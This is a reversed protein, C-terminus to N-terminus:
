GIELDDLAQFLEDDSASAYDADGPAPASGTDRADRWARLLAELRAEIRAGTDADAPDAARLAVELRDVHTLVPRALDASEPGALTLLLDTVQQATPHDFVLTSPVALGTTTRLRRRVEVAAVSDFGLDKFARDPEVADTGPHGLVAAVQERVLQLVARHREGDPLALLQQWHETDTEADAPTFSGDIHQYAAATGSGALWYPTRQFPYVPLPVRRASRGEFFTQWDIDLGRAHAAAVATVLEREEGRDRRLLPLFVADTGDTLCDDGMASLVADPGLEIYTATNESELHRVADAFRVTERVHRVWYGPDQAEEATLSAGTLTSVVPLQPPAYDLGGAIGAFEDLMPEMLPSHFAHSVKLQKTRHGEAAFRNCLELVADRAGSVVVSTRGNVAGIGVRDTLYPRVQEETAQVAVMAGGEPLAQMLRGRAAVLKAAHELTLIGAVHAAALEGISHGVLVDPRIAWSELLRYLAVEVTFLAPQTYETRNLDDETDGWMVERLPRELHPAFADAAAEFARAFTPFVECLERGMGLRQAGQGSFVFATRRGTAAASRAGGAPLDGEALAALAHALEGHDAAGFAARHEMTARANTLSHAVDLLELEPRDALHAGLRRAQERLAKPSKATLVVPLPRGDASERDTPPEVAPPQEIIVHANTGSIGFSSIGARRPRGTDPWQQHETLLRVSESWEVEGTPEAVHLTRPLVGRRIAEAMKIVGAVGAAAQSHGINSKISGLWLPRDASRDQGYTAIVAQAEIPDGLITGTGHAEVADVDAPELGSVALARRIVRQQAPGNPATLGNSAGDQNVATGRILAVVPHGNRRADSLREVLLLGVGESFGTGDADASFSRCRGDPSLGQQLGFEILVEPTAMVTVGGAIALACEGSRLSQVALHLAVLSSSCATDVTVAPGELGYTYALRGSNISGTASNLAYDHYMAGTFVGTQSGKLAAPDIGANELLHWSTELLLRQQPDMTLADNPSIGFFAADFEAADHLFGGYRTYTKGPTGPEPHYIEEIDWGRGAPFETVTEAGDALLDWLEEPSDIGGPFRCAMAVVAIPEDDRIATAPAGDPQTPGAAGVLTEKLHQAIARSNPYDFVLTAPLRQGVEASLRNRLEVATLSDFGLEKFAQGPDVADASAHGLADAVHARVRALLLRDRDEEPLRALQDALTDGGGAGAHAAQRAPPRVLDRLVAPTESTAAQARLRAIDLRLLLLLADDRRLASDFFALGEETAMAPFGQRKLREIDTDTLDGTMGTGEAWLGWAMSTAPLGHARRHDALADLFTNAIAYNAQGAAGLTGAASSFLAFLGLDLEHTLEHLHWAADAKPALVTHLREPTLATLVGDDLVGASHVVGTLPHDAPIAALLAALADRDAVDCAAVTVDAGAAALEDCLEAVGPAAPGRRSTLVLHKVGHEAVLHRAALAGLGSTGGTVLVTGDPNLEAPAGLAEDASTRALRPAYIAGDRLAFEPEGGAIAAPLACTSAHTGDLDALLFVGPNEAQATHVLGWVPALTLEPAGDADRTRVAGSTLVALRTAALREDALWGQLLALVECAVARVAAPLDGAPAPCAYLVLDPPPTGTDLAARLADLDHHGPLTSDGLPDDGLWAWGTTAPPSAPAPVPQWTLGYPEARRAAGAQLQEASVPRAVLSAVSLVPQGTLDAAEILTGDEGAPALRVRLETAGVAHLTVGTWAFPLNTGESPDETVLEAHLAADLLAPHLGFRAADVHAQEDLRVEAFVEDGRRWVAQLGQFVPGYAYGRELLRDYAGELGVPEAGPPPWQALDFAPAPVSQTLVGTAHLTWPADEGEARSHVSMRRAGSSDPAAVAVQVALTGAEPVVLPASLTLEDLTTCGTQEGARLALDVFATGPLLVTGMAEHDAVWAHTRASLRGTLLTAGDGATEVAAALLPHDVRTQGTRAEEAVVGPVEKWLRRRQFAYTPLDITTAGTGDFFATWEVPAGRVYAEALSAAFRKLGGEKRRLSGTVAGQRGTADLTEELGVALVPHPSSEVFFDFGDDILRRAADEFRVTQRLNAYWYEADLGATDIPEGTVTSYFAIDCSRPRVPALIELLRDRLSEVYYSHSAYDVPIKRARVGQATLQQHVEDLAASEGCLVASSPGNVAALQVKDRWPTLREALEATPLPVSMMGGQGALEEGIVKSRLAVVRAGDQLSLAGAVTAAAVEGQSHGVVAAPEVGYSRWLAALSVMVAWLAPQVVDVPDLTPQGDEQRLVGLLDWDTFEALADACEGIARAFVPSKDLLEVAMGAWQSGQGPFVFAVKPPAGGAAGIVAAGPADQGSVVDLGALLGDLDDGIVVARHGLRARTTVLSLGVDVPRLGPRRTAHEWLRGAQVRLAQASKGSVVWPVVPPMEDSSM